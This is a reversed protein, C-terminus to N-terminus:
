QAPVFGVRGERIRDSFELDEHAAQAAPNILAQKRLLPFPLGGTLFGGRDFVLEDLDGNLLLRIDFPHRSEVPTQVRLSTTCNASMVNYFRPKKYLANAAAISEMLIDAVRKESLKTQYLHVPENRINTRLRVLDREDGFLYQLEFMKYLGGFESYSEGEERRTEISLVVHGDPGFDFSLMPHAINEGFRDLFFDLGQLNSLRVTRSVWRETIGGDRTYDFNRFGHFTLTDGNVDVHGTERWDQRWERDNSPRIAMWPLYVALFCIGWALSRRRAGGKALIVAVIALIVWLVALVTNGSGPVLPGNFVIAGYAWVSCALCFLIWLVLLPGRVWWRRVWKM